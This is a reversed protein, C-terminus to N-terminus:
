RRLYNYFTVLGLFGAFIYGLTSIVPLGLFYPMDAKAMIVISSSLLLAGIVLGLFIIDSSTEMSRRHHEIEQISIQMSYDPSNMKRAFQRVQRPLFRILSSIDSFAYGLEKVVKKPQYREAILEDAFELAATLFDFDDAVLRGMGEVTVISKFFMILESPLVLGQSYAIGTSEMLLKGLNVNQSTLGHYPAILDRLERAFRDVNVTDTYPALDVYLYALRDYDENSLALLMNAIASQTKDNLRGVVGFDILGIKNNPYVFINGAHLDGHFLGHIFVMRLYTRLGKKLIEEPLVGEQELAQKQSLPIGELMEMVLVRRGSLETYVEPIVVDVDFQFNEQFKRINNAEVIFNTELALSKFFEDVIATPNFLKAEPVYRNLLDALTYLVNLDEDIIKEIGPRQVKVVVKEGSHLRASHVQAISAAALPEENFEFFVDELNKGFHEILVQKVESLPLTPAQDHLKKFEAIFDGPVLDPRTALLQGLKIFTPGLKEFAM